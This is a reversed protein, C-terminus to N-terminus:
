QAGGRERVHEKAKEFVVMDLNNTYLFSRFWIDLLYNFDISSIEWPRILFDQSYRLFSMAIAQQLTILRADPFLGAIIWEAGDALSFYIVSRNKNKGKRECVILDNNEGAEFLQTSRTELKHEGFLETLIEYLELSYTPAVTTTFFLAAAIKLFHEKIGAFKTAFYEFFSYILNLARNENETGAWSVSELEPLNPVRFLDELFKWPEELPSRLYSAIGLILKAYHTNIRISLAINPDEIVAELPLRGDVSNIEIVEEPLYQFPISDIIRYSKMSNKVDDILIAGFDMEVRTLHRVNRLDLTDDTKLLYIKIQDWLLLTLFIRVEKRGLILNSIERIRNVFFKRSVEESSYRHLPKPLKLKDPVLVESNEKIPM